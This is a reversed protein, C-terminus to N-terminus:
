SLEQLMSPNIVMKLFESEKSITEFGVKRYISYAAANDAHVELFISKLHLNYFAYKLVMVSAQYGIGKGWYAKDGIFLHFEASEEDINILQINGIYTNSDKLCIAFRKENALNIKNSLWQREVDPTIQNKLVFKTYTWVDPDNRWKYSVDADKLELPRLYIQNM